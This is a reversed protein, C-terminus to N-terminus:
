EECVPGEVESGRIDDDSGSTGDAGFSVIRSREGVREIKFQRGWADKTFKAIGPDLVVWLDFSPPLCEEGIRVQELRRTLDEVQTRTEL